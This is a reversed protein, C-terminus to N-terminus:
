KPGFPDLGYQSCLARTWGPWCVRWLCCCPPPLGSHALWGLSSGGHGGCSTSGSLNLAGAYSPWSCMERGLVGSCPLEELHRAWRSEWINSFVCPSSPDQCSFTACTPLSLCFRQPASATSQTTRHQGPVWPLGTCTHFPHHPCLCFLDRVIGWFNHKLFLFWM